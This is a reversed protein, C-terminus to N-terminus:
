NSVKNFQSAVLGVLDGFQGLRSRVRGVGETKGLLRDMNDAKVRYEGMLAGARIDVARKFQQQRVGPKYLRQGCCFKLEGLRTEAQGPDVGPTNLGTNGTAPM